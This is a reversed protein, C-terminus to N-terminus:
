IYMIASRPAEYGRASLSQLSIEHLLGYFLFSSSLTLRGRRRGGAAKRLVTWVRSIFNELRTCSQAHRDLGRKEKKKWEVTLSSRPSPCATPERAFWVRRQQARTRLCSARVAAPAFGDTSSVSRTRPEERAREGSSPETKYMKELDQARRPPVQGGCVCVVSTFDRARSIARGTYIYKCPPLSVLCARREKGGERARARARSKAALINFAAERIM